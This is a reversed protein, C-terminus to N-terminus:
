YLKLGDLLESLLKEDELTKEAVGEISVDKDSMEPLM